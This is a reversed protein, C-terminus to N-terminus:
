RWLSFTKVKEKAHLSTEWKITAKLHRRWKSNRRIRISGCIEQGVEVVEPEDLMFLDQKWHTLEHDPGTSLFIPKVDNPLGPCEFHVEFWSAFGHFTGSKTVEFKFESYIDEVDAIKVHKTNMDLICTPFALCDDSDLTHNFIPKQFFQTKALSILPSLDFGYQSSWFSVKDNYSKHASCPVLYLNAHSPWMVGDPKLYRDRAYIVTEIMFEFILLTGMWESIILDVEEPIEVSELKGEIVSICDDLGNQKAVASAYQAMDSAEVAYVTRAKGLRAAFLSLIGTGCGVDLVVKDRIYEAGLEVAKRYALTRPRDELMELHLKLDSYSDFYQDDQWGEEAKMEDWESQTALHNVPAYGHRGDFSCWCWYPSGSAASVVLRDGRDFSLQNDETATYSHKGYLADGIRTSQAM